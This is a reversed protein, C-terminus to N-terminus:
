VTELSSPMNQLHNLVSASLYLYKRSGAKQIGILLFFQTYLPCNSWVVTNCALLYLIFIDYTFRKLLILKNVHRQVVLLAEFRKQKMFYNQLKISSISCGKSYFRNEYCLSQKLYWYKSTVLCILTLEKIRLAVHLDSKYLWYEVKQM